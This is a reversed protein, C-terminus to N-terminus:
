KQHSYKQLFFLGLNMASDRVVLRGHPPWAREPQQIMGFSLTVPRTPRHTTDSM